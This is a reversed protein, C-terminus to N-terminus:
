ANLLARRAPYDPMYHAVVGWFAASHNPHVFHAYEHLVVYEVAALPREALRLSLTIQRKTPACVGWRTTMARVKILPKQGNLVDAFLPFIQASVQEFLALAEERTVTLPAQDRAQRAQVRTQAQALWAARSDIFADIDKKAVRAPASVAVTGDRQVRLNINKVNKRELTYRQGNPTCCSGAAQKM